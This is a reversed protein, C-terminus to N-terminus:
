KELEQIVKATAIAAAQQITEGAAYGYPYKGLSIESVECFEVKKTKDDNWDYDFYPRCNLKEWVPILADLSRTYLDKQFFEDWLGDYGCTFCSVGDLDDEELGMYEAIIRNVEQLDM